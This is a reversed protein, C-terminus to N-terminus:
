IIVGNTKKENHEIEKKRIGRKLCICQIIRNTNKIRGIYGRGYCKKCNPDVVDKIKYQKKTNVKNM